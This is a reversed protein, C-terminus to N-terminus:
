STIYYRILYYTNLLRVNSKSPKIAVIPELFVNTSPELVIVGLVLSLLDNSIKGPFFTLEIVILWVWNTKNIIYKSPEESCTLVLLVFVKLISLM